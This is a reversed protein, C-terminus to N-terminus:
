RERDRGDRTGPGVDEAADDDSLGGPGLPPEVPPDDGPPDATGAVEVRDRCYGTTVRAVLLWRAASNRHAVQPAMRFATRPSEARWVIADGWRAAPCRLPVMSTGIDGLRQTHSRAPTIAPATLHPSSGSGTLSPPMSFAHIM